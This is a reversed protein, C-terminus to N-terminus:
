ESFVGGAYNRAHLQLFEDDRPANALSFSRRQGDKMLIDIYQGPLFQLRENAPFKLYIIMVDSAVHELKHVRCPMTRIRMDKVAEIERCELELDSLQRACCVLASGQRKELERLVSEDYAGYDVSGQVIGG